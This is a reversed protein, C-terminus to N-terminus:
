GFFSPSAKFSIGGVNWAGLINSYMDFSMGLYQGPLSQVFNTSIWTNGLEIPKMTIDM